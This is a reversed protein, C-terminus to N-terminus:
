DRWPLKRCEFAVDYATLGADRRERESLGRMEDRERLRGLWRCLAERWPAGRAGIERVRAGPLGGIPPLGVAYPLTTRVHPVNLYAPVYTELGSVDRPM